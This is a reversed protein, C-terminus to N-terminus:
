QGLVWETTDTLIHPGDATRRRGIDTADLPAPHAAEGTIVRVARGRSGAPLEDARRILAYEGAAGDIVTDLLDGTM